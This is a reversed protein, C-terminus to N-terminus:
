CLGIQNFVKSNKKCPVRNSLSFLCYWSLSYKLNYNKDGKKMSECQQIIKRKIKSFSLLCSFQQKRIWSHTRLLFLHSTVNESCFNKLNYIQKRQRACKKPISKWETAHVLNKQLPINWFTNLVNKSNKTQFFFPKGLETLVRNLFALIGKQAIKPFDIDYFLVLPPVKPFCKAALFSPVTATGGEARLQYEAKVFKHKKSPSEVIKSKNHKQLGPNSM